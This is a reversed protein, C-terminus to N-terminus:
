SKAKFRYYWTGDRKTRQFPSAKLAIGLKRLDVNQLPEDNELLFHQLEAVSMLIPKEEPSCIDFHKNVIGLEPHQVKFQENAQSLLNNEEGQLWYRHGAKHLTLAQAYVMDIDINHDMEIKNAEFCLFRRNGTDDRLFESSNVSGMFSARRTMNEALRGYPRRVRISQQTIMAKLSGLEGRNLNELEDLNILFCESLHALTDKNSPDIAGSFYHSKLSRPVLNNMWTTKGIGQEGILVLVFHNVKEADLSCVVTGVLWMRLATGWWEKFDERVTITDALQQIYDVGDWEPLNEFYSAFPDFVPTYASQLTSLMEGIGVHIGEWKMARHISNTAYDDLRNYEGKEGKVKYEIVSYVANYRFEYENTLYEEMKQFAQKGKYRLRLKSM